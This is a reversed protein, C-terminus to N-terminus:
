KSANKNVCPPTCMAHIGDLDLQQQPLVTDFVILSRATDILTIVIYVMCILVAGVALQKLLPRETGFTVLKGTHIAPTM